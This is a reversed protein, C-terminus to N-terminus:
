HLDSTWLNYYITKNLYNEYTEPSTECRRFNQRFVTLIAQSTLLQPITLLIFHTTFITVNTGPLTLITIYETTM